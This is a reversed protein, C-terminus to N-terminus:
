RKFRYGVVVTFVGVTPFLDFRSQAGIAGAPHSDGFQGIYEGRITWEHGDDKPHFGLTLGATATQLGGLRYDNTAFAPLPQGQTLGFRYFDAATQNYYRVHPEIYGTGAIPHRYKADITESRVGWDDWYHRYSLYLINTTFHYVSDAQASKRKRSAPRKESLAGIPVGSVRDIISLAKYPDTLYGKESTFSASLGLLWRRSMVQSLGVLGTQVQKSNSSAGTTVGPPSLALSTGGVPSIQDQNLGGGLSLTTLKRNFDISVKGNVGLSQYDKEKSIHGGVSYAFRKWPQQWEGELAFRNDKFNVTPLRDASIVATRGSASTFTQTRGSPLLGSPSAGSITDLAFQGFFSRGSPYLRTFRVTPEFVTIRESYLLATLDIQTSAASAAEAGHALRPAASALLLCTAAKLKARLPGPRPTNELQM